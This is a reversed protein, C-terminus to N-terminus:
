LLGHSQFFARMADLEADTMSAYPPRRWRETIGFLEMAGHMGADFGGRLNMLHEFFPMDTRAIVERAASGDRATVARWYAHAVSPRFTIFTSLYGDCGYPLLDFHNQKQGGSVVAWRDHVRLSMKRAFEGCVDDKVAVIGEVRDRLTELVRLGFAAGRPIFYNTVVMVPIEAAVAAYHEALTEVTCSGAWDPPLVMLVDAGSERAYRAFAVEKATAWQRDAAIVMARGAAQQALIRTVDAVEDDTLVSFLSDGYTLMLAKSGAEVCFDVLTRLGRLDLDGNRLFPTRLSAVPGTLAARVAERNM